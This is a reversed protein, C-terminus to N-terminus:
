HLSGELDLQFGEFFNTISWLELEVSLVSISSFSSVVFFIKVDAILFFHSVNLLMGPSDPASSCEFEKFSVHSSVQMFKIPLFFFSSLSHIEVSVHFSVSCPSSSPSASFSGTCPHFVFLVSCLM